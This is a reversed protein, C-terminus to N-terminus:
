HIGVGKEKFNLAAMKDAKWGQWGGMNSYEDSVTLALNLFFSDLITPFKATQHKLPLAFNCLLWEVLLSVWGPRKQVSYDNWVCNLLV